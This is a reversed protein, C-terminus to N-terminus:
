ILTPFSEESIKHRNLFCILDHDRYVFMSYVICSARELKKCEDGLYFEFYDM